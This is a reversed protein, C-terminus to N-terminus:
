FPLDDDIEEAKPKHEHEVWIKWEPSAVIKDQLRTGLADFDARTSTEFNWIVPPNVPKAKEMGKPLATVGVVNAYTRDGVTNHTITLLCHTGVLRDSDFRAIEEETFKKGRWAELHTKFVSEYHTGISNNYMRSAIFPKGDDRLEEPLEWGIFIQPREGWQTTQTGMDVSMYCIAQHTGEPAPQFDGGAKSTRLRAM